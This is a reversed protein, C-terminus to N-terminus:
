RCIFDSECSLQINRENMLNQQQRVSVVYEKKVRKLAFTISPKDILHVLDVRAFGGKGLTTIFKVKDLSMDSFESVINFKM